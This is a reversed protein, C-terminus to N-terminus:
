VIPQCSGSSSQDASAALDADHNIATRPAGSRPLTVIRDRSVGAALLRELRDDVGVLAAVVLTRDLAAQAVPRVDLAHLRGTYFDDYIAGIAVPTEASLIALAEAVHNAGYVSIRAVGCEALGRLCQRCSHFVELNYQCMSWVFAAAKTPRTSAEGISTATRSLKTAKIYLATALMRTFLGSLLIGVRVDRGIAM